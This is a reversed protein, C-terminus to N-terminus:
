RVAGSARGEGADCTADLPGPGTVAAEALAVAVGGDLLRARCEGARGGGSAAGGGARPARAGPGAAGPAGWAPTDSGCFESGGLSVADSGLARDARGAAHVVADGDAHRRRACRGRRHRRQCSRRALLRMTSPFTVASWRVELARCADSVEIAEAFQWLIEPREALRLEHLRQRRAAPRGLVRCQAGGRVRGDGRGATTSFCMAGTATTSVAIARRTGKIRLVAADSRAARRTSVWRSTTNGSPGRRPRLPPRRWLDVLARGYDAPEPLTAISSGARRTRPRSLSRTSRRKRSRMSPVEAVIAGHHRVTLTPEATVHGIWRM